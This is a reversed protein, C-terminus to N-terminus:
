NEKLPLREPSANPFGEFSLDVSELGIAHVRFKKNVVDGVLANIVLEDKMFVAVKRSEPGLSGLYEVDIPPPQPERPTTPVPNTVVPPPASRPERAPPPVRVREVVPPRGYEWPNRGVEFEQAEADLRAMSLEAVETELVRSFDASRSGTLFGDGGRGIGGLKNYGYFVLFALLALLLYRQRKNDTANDQDAM